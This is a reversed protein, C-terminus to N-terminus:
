YGLLILSAAFPALVEVSPPAGNMACKPPGRV